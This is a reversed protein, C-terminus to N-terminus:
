RPIALAELMRELTANWRTRRGGRPLGLDRGGCRGRPLSREGRSRPPEGHSCKVRVFVCALCGVHGAGVRRCTAAAHNRCPARQQVICQVLRVAWSVHVDPLLQQLRELHTVSATPFCPVHLAGRFIAIGLAYFFFTGRIFSMCPAISRPFSRSVTSPLRHRPSGAGGVPGTM